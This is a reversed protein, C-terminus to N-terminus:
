APVSRTAPRPAALDVFVDGGEIRVPYTTLCATRPNLGRGTAADYQYGHAACVLVGDALTGDHLPLGLHACRDAYAFVGEELRVLVVKHGDLVLGRVDGSWLDDLAMAFRYSM